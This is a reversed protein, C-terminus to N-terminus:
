SDRMEDATIAPYEGRDGVHAILALPDTVRPTAAADVARVQDYVLFGEPLHMGDPTVEANLHARRRKADVEEFAEKPVGAAEALRALELFAVLNGRERRSAVLADERAVAVNGRERELKDTTREVRDRLRAITGDVLRGFGEMGGNEALAHEAVSNRDLDVEGNHDAFLPNRDYARDAASM